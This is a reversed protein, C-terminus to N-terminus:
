HGEKNSGKDTCGLYLDKGINLSKGDISLKKHTKIIRLSKTIDFKM